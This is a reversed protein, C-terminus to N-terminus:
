LRLKGCCQDPNRFIDTSSDFRQKFSNFLQEHCCKAALIQSKQLWGSWLLKATSRSATRCRQLLAAWKTSTLSWSFFWKNQIWPQFQRHTCSGGEGGGFFFFVKWCIDPILLISTSYCVNRERRGWMKQRGIGEGNVGWHLSNWTHRSLLPPRTM